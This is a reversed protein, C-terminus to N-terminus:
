NETDTGKFVNSISASTGNDDAADPTTLGKVTMPNISCKLVKPVFPPIIWVAAADENPFCSTLIQM